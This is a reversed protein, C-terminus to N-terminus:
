RGVLRNAFAAGDAFGNAIPQLPGPTRASGDANTTTSAGSAAADPGGAGTSSGAGSAGGAASAAREAKDKEELARIESDYETFALQALVGDNQNTSRTTLGKFVLRKVGRADLHQNVVRRGKVGSVAFLAQLARLQQTLEGPTGLLLVDARITAEPFGKVVQRTGSKGDNKQREIRLEGTVEIGQLIGPVLTGDIKMANTRNVPLYQGM